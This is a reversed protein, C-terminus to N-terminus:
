PRRIIALPLMSLAPAAFLDRTLQLRPFPVIQPHSAWFWFASFNDKRFPYLGVNAPTKVNSRGPVPASRPKPLVGKSGGSFQEALRLRGKVPHPPLNIAVNALLPVHQPDCVRAGAAGAPAQPCYRFVAPGPVGPPRSM